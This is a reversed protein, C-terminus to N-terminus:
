RENSDSGDEDPEHEELWEDFAPDAPPADGLSLVGDHEVVPVGASAPADAPREPEAAPPPQRGRSRHKDQRAKM